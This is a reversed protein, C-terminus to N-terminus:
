PLVPLPGPFHAPRSFRGRQRLNHVFLTLRESWTYSPNTLPIPFPICYETTHPIPFLGKHDYYDRRTRTHAIASASRTPHSLEKGECVPAGDKSQEDGYTQLIQTIWLSIIDKLGLENPKFTEDIQEETEVARLAFPRARQLPRSAVSTSPSTSFNTASQYGQNSTRRTPRASRVAACTVSGGRTRMGWGSGAVAAPAPLMATAMTAPVPPATLVSPPPRSSTIWRWYFLM